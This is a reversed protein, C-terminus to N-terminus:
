LPYSAIRGSRLIPFGANNAAVGRPFGLVMLEDGTSISQQDLSDDAALYNVPIAARAFAEPATIKMAAVDRSPHRTWLPAGAPDRIQPPKPTYSWSGDARQTRYGIKAEQGPMSALVHNATVLVTQPSGDAKPETLLFGTGVTRSGDGVPQ